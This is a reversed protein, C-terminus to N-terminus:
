GKESFPCTGNTGQVVLQAWPNERYTAKLCIVKNVEGDTGRRVLTYAETAEEEDVRERNSLLKTNSM